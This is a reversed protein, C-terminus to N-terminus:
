LKYTLFCVARPGAHVSLAPGITIISGKANPYLQQIRKNVEVAKENDQVVAVVYNFEEEQKYGEFALEMALDVCKEYGRTKKYPVIAGDIVALVPKINLLNAILGQSKKLRGGKILYKLTFLSIYIRITQIFHNLPEWVEDLLEARSYIELFKQVVVQGGISVSLTDVVYIKVEPHDEMFHQSAIKASQITGSLKSSVHFSFITKYDQALIEYAEYFDAPPPQSTTPWDKSEQVMEFFKAISLDVRDKYAKEGFNVYVPVVYLNKKSRFEKDVDLASDLLIGISSTDM